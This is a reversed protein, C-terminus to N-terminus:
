SLVVGRNLYKSTIIKKLLQKHKGYLFNIGCVYYTNIFNLSVFSWMFCETNTVVAVYLTMRIRTRGYVVILHTLQLRVYM